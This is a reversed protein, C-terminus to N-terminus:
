TYLKKTMALRQDAWDAGPKALPLFRPDKHNAQPKVDDADEIVVTRIQLLVNLEAQFAWPPEDCSFGRQACSSDLSSQDSPLNIQQMNTALQATSSAKRILFV